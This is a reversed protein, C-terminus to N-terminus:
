YEYVEEEIHCNKCITTIEFWGYDGHSWCIEFDIEKSDCKKCTLEFNKLKKSYDQNNIILVAM